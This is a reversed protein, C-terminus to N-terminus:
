SIYITPQRCDPKTTYLETSTVGLEALSPLGPGPVVDPYVTEATPLASVARLGLLVLAAIYSTPAM